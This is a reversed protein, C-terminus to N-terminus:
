RAVRTATFTMEYYSCDACNGQYEASLTATFTDNDTFTGSLTYTETCGGTLSCTALITGDAASSGQLTCGYSWMSSNMVPQVWLNAGNDQLTLQTYNLVVMPGFGQDACTYQIVPSISFTGNPDIGGSAEVLLEDYAAPGDLTGDTPIVLCAWLDGPTTDGAPITWSEDYAPQPVADLAWSVSYFVDDGDPDIAPVTVSCTLDDDDFAPNPVIAIEAAGPAHNVDPVCLGEVWTTQVTTGDSGGATADLFVVGNGEDLHWLGITGLSEEVPLMPEFSVGYIGASSLRVEDIRGLFADDATGGPLGGLHLDGTNDASGTHAASDLLQGDVFLRVLTGNYSLAVHTWTGATLAGPVFIETMGSGGWVTAAVGAGLTARLTFGAGGPDRKQAILGPGDSAPRIWAEFTLQGLPGLSLAATHPIEALDTPGDLEIAAGSGTFAEDSGAPGEGELDSPTVTCGWAGCGLALDAILSPTTQGDLVEGDLTWQYAYDVPDGDPDDSPTVVSCTLESGPTASGPTVAVVPATPLSNVVTVPPAVAPDGDGDADHPTVICAVDDGRTTFSAALTDSTQGAVIEGDITWAFRLTVEDGDPESVEGPICTLADQTTPDAPSVTAGDVSPPGGLRATNSSVPDGEAEGDYPTVVCQLEEGAAFGTAEVSNQSAPLGMDVANRLWAYRYAPPGADVGPEASSQGPGGADADDPDSWGSPTCLFTTGPLGAEPSLTATAVAPPTNVVTVAASEVSAGSGRADSPTVTCTFTEGKETEAAALTAENASAVLEDDRYWAYALEVADDDPDVVDHAACVLDDTTTPTEPSVTVSGVSPLGELLATESSVETGEDQGDFPVVTCHLRDGPVCGFDSPRITDLTSATALAEDNRYWAFRYAPPSVDVGPEGTSVGPGAADPPDPDDWGAPACEFTDTALGDSPVLTAGTMAPATNRITTANKSNVLAGEAFGDTPAVGCTVVEGKDFDDGDLSAGTAGAVEVGDVWWVYSAPSVEDGDADSPNSPVCTLVDMETAGPWPRVEVSGYTPTSNGVYVVNSRVPTGTTAGDSPIVACRLSDGKLFLRSAAGPPNVLTESTTGPITVFDCDGCAGKVEWQYSLRVEDEDPDSAAAASCTFETEVTGEAPSLAVGEVFPAANMVTAQASTVPAGLEIGDFPTVVCRLADDKEVGGKLRRGPWLDCHFGEDCEEDTACLATAAECAGTAENCTLGSPCGRTTCGAVCRGARCISNPPGCEVSAACTAEADVCRGTASACIQGLSCDDDSACNPVCRVEFPIDEGGRRWGYFVQEPDGADPDEFGEYRCTFTADSPGADPTIGASTVHPVGNVIEVSATAFPGEDLGDWPFVRVEWQEGRRTHGSTLRLGDRDPQLEGDRYWAVREYSLTDGDEDEGETVVEVELDNGTHAPIPTLAVVPATPPHNVRLTVADSDTAGAHDTVTLTVVHDGPPLTGAPLDLEVTGDAAPTSTGFEGATDGSWAVSLRSAAEDPDAVQGRLAIIEGGSLRTGDTPAVLVATPASNAQDAASDPVATTDTRVDAGTSGHDSDSGGCSTAFFVVLAFLALRKM